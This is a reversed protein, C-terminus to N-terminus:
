RMPTNHCKDCFERQGAGFEVLMDRGYYSYLVDSGTVGADGVQPHSDAILSVTLDWRGAYMFASAHARHCTLCMVRSTYDPGLTSTPDLLSTGAYGREFPVFQLYATERVGSLDGTKIYANYHDARSTGLTETNGAPHEFAASHGNIIYNSHCNTCWESMGSGYDVHSGDSEGFRSLPNQVAVPADLSFSFGQVHEGGDYGAGGLLRYNGLVAGGPASGGYSGSGSVPLGGSATKGGHPDHCSTCGLLASSYTGGPGYINTSDQVYGFDVAIVNHGHREGPSSGTAWVFDKGLWYFDGGPTMASGDPSAVHSSDPSGVGSHCNLCISSPDTGRILWQSVSDGGTNHMTHCGDCSGVSGDHFFADSGAAIGLILMAAMIFVLGLKFM